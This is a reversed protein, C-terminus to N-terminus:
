RNYCSQLDILNYITPKITLLSNDFIIRKELIVLKILYNKHSGYNVKSIRENNEINEKDEVLLFMRM